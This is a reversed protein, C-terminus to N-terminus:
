QHEKKMHRYKEKTALGGRLHREQKNRDLVERVKDYLEGDIKQLRGTVDSHVTSKSVSNAVAAKRVTSNYRVIYRGLEVAREDPNNEM